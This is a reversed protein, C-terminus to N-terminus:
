QHPLMGKQAKPIQQVESPANNKSGYLTLHAKSVIPLSYKVLLSNTIAQVLFYKEQFELFNLLPSRSYYVKSAVWEGAIQTMPNFQNVIALRM